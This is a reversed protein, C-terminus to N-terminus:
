GRLGTFTIGAIFTKQALLFLVAIPALVVFTAAMFGPWQVLHQGFFSFLGLQLTYSDSDSLYILPHFLGTLNHIFPFPAVLPPAPRSLPVVIPSFLRLHARRGRPGRRHAGSASAPLVPAPPLDLLCRRLLQPHDAASLH